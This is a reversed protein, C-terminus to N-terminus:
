EEADSRDDRAAEDYRQSLEVLREQMESIDMGAFQKSELGAIEWRLKDMQSAMDQHTQEYTKRQSEALDKQGGLYTIREELGRIEERRRKLWVDPSLLSENKLAERVPESLEALVTEHPIMPLYMELLNKGNEGLEEIFYLPNLISLFVDREGFMDTLDLQRIEYGDYETDGYIVDARLEPNWIMYCRESVSMAVHLCHDPLFGTELFDNSSYSGNIAYYLELPSIERYSIIGGTRHEEVIITGKAQSVRLIVDQTTDERVPQAM